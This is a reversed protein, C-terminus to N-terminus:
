AFRGRVFGKHNGIGIGLAEYASFMLVDKRQEIFLTADQLLYFKGMYEETTLLWLENAPIIDNKITTIMPYGALSKEKFVGQDYHRSAVQDGVSTAPLKLLDAALEETCLFCGIPMKRSKMNKIMESVNSMNLGGTLSLAQSPNNGVIEDAIEYFRMDEQDSMDKVSNDTIIKRIDNKYTMLEWKTKVFEESEIKGFYISYKDASYWRKPPTGRFPLSVAASDPEKEVLIRPLDTHEDPTLDTEDIKIPKLVERVFSMERMRNRVFSTANQAAEKINGSEVGNVFGRNISQVSMTPTEVSNAAM